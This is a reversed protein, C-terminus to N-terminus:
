RRRFLAIGEYAKRGPLFSMHDLHWGEAEIAEIQEALGSIPAGEVSAIPVDLRFTLVAHGEEAARHAHKRALDAKVDKMFGM